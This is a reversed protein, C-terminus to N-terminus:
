TKSKEQLIGARSILSVKYFIQLCMNEIVAFNLRQLQRSLTIAKIQKEILFLDNVTGGFFVLAYLLLLLVYITMLFQHESTEVPVKYTCSDNLYIFHINLSQIFFNDM